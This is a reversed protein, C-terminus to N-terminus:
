RQAGYGEGLLKEAILGGFSHGVIVPKGDLGDIIQMMHSTVDDIGVNAVLEPHERAETM